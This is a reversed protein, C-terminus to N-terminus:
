RFLKNTTKLLITKSHQNTVTKKVATTTITQLQWMKKCAELTQSNQCCEGM